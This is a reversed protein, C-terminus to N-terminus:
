RRRKGRRPRPDGFMQLAWPEPLEPHRPKMLYDEGLLRWAEETVALDPRGYEDMEVGLMQLEWLLDYGTSFVADWEDVSAIARKRNARKRVPM